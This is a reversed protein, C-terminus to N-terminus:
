SDTSSSDLSNAGTSQGASIDVAGDVQHGWIQRTAPHYHTFNPGGPGGWSPLAEKRDAGHFPPRPTLGALLRAVRHRGLKVEIRLQRCHDVSRALAGFVRALKRPSREPGELALNRTVCGVRKNLPEATAAVVLGDSTDADFVGVEGVLLPMPTATTM